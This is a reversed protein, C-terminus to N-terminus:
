SEPKIGLYDLHGHDHLAALVVVPDNTRLATLIAHHRKIGDRARRHRAEERM